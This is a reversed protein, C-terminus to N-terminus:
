VIEHHVLAPEATIAGRRVLHDGGGGNGNGRVGKREIHAGFLRVPQRRMVPVLGAIFTRAQRQLGHHLLWAPDTYHTAKVYM